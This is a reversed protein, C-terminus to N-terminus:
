SELKVISRSLASTPQNRGDARLRRSTSLPTSGGSSPMLCPSPRSTLSGHSRPSAGAAHRHAGCPWWATSSTSTPPTPKSSSPWSRWCNTEFLAPRVSHRARRLRPPASGGTAVMNFPQLRTDGHIVRVSEITVGLEDAVVQALTTEHSQGHPQQSTFVSVYGDPEIKVRARQLSRQEYTFGLAESYNSPGPGPELYTCFGVGQLPENRGDDAGSSAGAALAARAAAQRARFGDYDAIVVAQRLTENLSMFELSAGTLMHGPLEDDRLYNRQRVLVPDLGVEFAICDMLRERVWCEVEWPGRYAVYSAKNTTLVRGTFTYHRLRLTGPLLIKVINAFLNVPINLLPYAGADIELAARLGLLVGDRDVAAEISMREDRAHGAAVLNEVRDETWMIPRHLLKAAVCVAVDERSPHSKLGFSGGVSDLRVVIKNAPHDLIAALHLRTAHPNQHSMVYTLEGTSPEYSAM